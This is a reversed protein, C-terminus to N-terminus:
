QDTVALIRRILIGLKLVVGRALHHAFTEMVIDCRRGNSKVNPGEVVQNILSDVM